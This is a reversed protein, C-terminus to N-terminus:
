IVARPGFRRRMLAVGADHIATGGTSACAAAEIVPAIGNDFLETACALVGCDTGIGVILPRSVGRLRCHAALVGGTSYGFKRVVPHRTATGALEGIVESSPHTESCDHWDLESRFLSHPLNVFRTLLIPLRSKEAAATRDLIAEVVHETGTTRFGIQVDVLILGDVRAPLVGPATAMASFRARFRALKESHVASQQHRVGRIEGQGLSDPATM